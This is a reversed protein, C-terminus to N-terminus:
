LAASRQLARPRRAGAAHIRLSPRSRGAYALGGAKRASSRRLGSESRGARRVPTRMRRSFIWLKVPAALGAFLNPNLILFGRYSGGFDKYDLDLVTPSKGCTMRRGDIEIRGAPVLTGGSWAAYAEPSLDSQLADLPQATCPSCLIAVTMFALLRLGTMSRMDLNM